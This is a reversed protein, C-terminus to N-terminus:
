PGVAMQRNNNVELPVAKRGEASKNKQILSELADDVEAAFRPWTFSAAHQRGAMGMSRALEPSEALETMRRAFAAPEPEELFGNVEHSVTERPGGRNVAVVTKGFSMGELPVIGYDENFATFLTNYCTRYLETLEFDSPHIHFEIRPDGNTMQKLQALFAKSKQDVIGAVVLRFQTAGPKRAAQFEQFASIALELNKTWMIRGAVLFFPQYEPETNSGDLGLAPFLLDLKDAPALGGAIVRRRVEGSICFIRSYHKWALRDLVRFLASGMGVLARKWAPFNQGWRERYVEDFAIRLPTLCINIAPLEHNRLLTLDGLGECFIVLAEFEELPLKQTVLKLSSVTTQLITRRVSVPSLEIVRQSQFEPFTQDGQFRNTIFTWEHRSHEVLRLMTREAGSTLYIWPYYLAVKM